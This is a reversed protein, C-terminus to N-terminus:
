ACEVTDVLPAMGFPIPFSYKMCCNQNSYLWYAHANCCTLYVPRCFRIGVDRCQRSSRTQYHQNAVFANRSSIVDCVMFRNRSCLILVRCQTTEQRDPLKESTWREVPIKRGRGALHVLVAWFVPDVLLIWLLRKFARAVSLHGLAGLLIHSRM